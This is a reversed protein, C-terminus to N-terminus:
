RLRTLELNVHIGRGSGLGADQHSHEDQEAHGGVVREVPLGLELLRLLFPPAALCIRLLLLQPCQGIPPGATATTLPASDLIRCLKTLKHILLIDAEEKFTNIIYAM